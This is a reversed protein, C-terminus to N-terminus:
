EVSLVEVEFSIDEGALDCIILGTLMMSLYITRIKMTNFHRVFVRQTKIPM